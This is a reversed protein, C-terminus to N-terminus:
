VVSVRHAVSELELQGRHAKHDKQVWLVKQDQLAQHDMKVKLVKLVL